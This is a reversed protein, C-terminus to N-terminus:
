PSVESEEIISTGSVVLRRGSRVDLRAQTDGGIHPITERVLLLKDDMNKGNGLWIEFGEASSVVLNYRDSFDMSNIGLLENGSWSRFFSRLTERRVECRLHEGPVVLDNEVGSIVPYDAAPDTAFGFCVADEDILWYGDATLLYAAQVRETVSVLLTDPLKREIVVSKIEPYQGVISEVIKAEQLLIISMGKEIEGAKLIEDATIESDGTVTIESIRFFSEGYQLLYALAAFLALRILLRLAKKWRPLQKNQQVLQLHDNKKAV